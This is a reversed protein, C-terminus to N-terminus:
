VSHALLIHFEFVSRNTRVMDNFLAHFYRCSQFIRGVHLIFHACYSASSPASKSSIQCSVKSEKTIQCNDPLAAKIIRQVCAQPPEFDPFKNERSGANSTGDPPLSSEASPLQRYLHVEINRDLAAICLRGGTTSNEVTTPSSSSDQVTASHTMARAEGSSESM